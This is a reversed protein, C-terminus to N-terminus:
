RWAGGDVAPEVLAAAAVRWWRWGSGEYGGGVVGDVGVAATVGAPVMMVVEALAEGKASWVEALNRDHLRLVVVAKAAARGGEVGGHGYGGGDGGHCCGSGVVGDECGGRSLR